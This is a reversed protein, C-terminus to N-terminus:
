FIFFFFRVECHTKDIVYLFEYYEKCYTRRKDNTNNMLCKLSKVKPPTQGKLPCQDGTKAPMNNPDQPGPVNGQPDNPNSPDDNGGKRPKKEQDGTDTNFKPLPPFFPLDVPSKIYDATESSTVESDFPYLTLGTFWSATGYTGIGVNSLHLNEFINFNVLNVSSNQKFTKTGDTTAFGSIM